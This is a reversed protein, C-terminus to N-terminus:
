TRLKPGWVEGTSAYEVIDFRKKKEISPARQDGGLERNKEKISEESSWRPASEDRLPAFRVKKM